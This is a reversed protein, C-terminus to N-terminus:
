KVIKQAFRTLITAVQARSASEQPALRGNSGQILGNEVCWAMAERAYASATDYDAFTQISAVDATVDYGCLKAYRYLMAALQERTICREMGTGDSVGNAMAWNQGAAYWPTGSTSEGELRALITVIMGRTTDANPSFTTRSTGTMLGNEHVYEVSSYYWSDAPVDTFPWGSGDAAADEAADNVSPKAVTGTRNGNSPEVYTKTSSLEFTSFKTITFVACGDEITFTKAGRASTKLFYEVSGDSSSHKIQEPEFGEPLPLRVTMEGSLLSNPVAVNEKKDIESGASNKTTVTAVPTATYTMIQKEESSLEAATLEVKVDVDVDIKVVGEAGTNIESKTILADMSNKVAETVGQVQTKDIVENIANKDEVSISENGPISATTKETATVTKGDTTKLGTYKVGNITVTENEGLVFEAKGNEGITFTTDQGVDTIKDEGITTQGGKPVTVKGNATVNIQANGTNKVTTNKDGVNVAEDKDLTASGSNLKVNGSTDIVLKTEANGVAYETSGIIVKGNAPVTVSGSGSSPDDAKVTIAATGSNIVATNKNGVCITETADLEVAGSTLKVGSTTVDIVMENESSANTYITEGITVKCSNFVTVTDDDGVKVTIIGGDDPNTIKVGQKGTATAGPVLDTGGNVINVEGSLVTLLGVESVNLNADTTATIKNGTGTQAYTEISDGASLEGVTVNKITSSTIVITDATDNGRADTLAEGLTDYYTTGIKAEPATVTLTVNCFDSAYDTKKDGNYQENFVKLTYSGAEIDRPITVTETGNAASLQAIRGYYVVEGQSNVLMASIYENTGTKAGSYNLTLTEGTVATTVETSLSATFSRSSDKLTLKWENGTYASVATLGSDMGDASKGKEAASTFLIKSSDLNFAPRVCRRYATSGAYVRGYDGVYGLWTEYSYDSVSRLWWTNTGMSLGPGKSYNCVYNALEQASLLFLTEKDLGRACLNYDDSGTKYTTTGSESKTTALMAKQELDSFNGKGDNKCWSKADDFTKNSALLNESLLFMRNSTDTNDKDADLVRWKNNGFYIYSKPEYYFGSAYDGTGSKKEPDKIGGTGLMITKVTTSDAAFAATPLMGLVMVLCLLVSLFRKKM